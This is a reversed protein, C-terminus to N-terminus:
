TSKEMIAIQEDIRKSLREYRSESSRKPLPIGLKIASLELVAGLADNWTLRRIGEQKMENGYRIMLEEKVNGLAAYNELSVMIHTYNPKWDIRKKDREYCERDM